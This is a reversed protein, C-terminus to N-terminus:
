TRVYQMRVCQIMFCQTRIYQKYVNCGSVGGGLASSGSVIYLIRFCQMRCVIDHCVSLESFYQTRVCLIDQRVSIRSLCFGSEMCGSV